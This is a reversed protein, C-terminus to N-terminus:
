STPQAKLHDYLNTRPPVYPYSTSIRRHLLAYILHTNFITREIHIAQQVKSIAQKDVISTTLSLYTIYLVIKAHIESSRARVRLTGRAISLIVLISSIDSVTYENAKRSKKIM